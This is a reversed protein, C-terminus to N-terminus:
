IDDNTKTESESTSQNEISTNDKNHNDKNEKGKENDNKKVWQFSNITILIICVVIILGFVPAM